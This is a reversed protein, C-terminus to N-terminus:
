IVAAIRSSTRALTYTLHGLGTTTNTIIVLFEEATVPTLILAGEQYELMTQRLSGKDMLGGSREFFSMLDSCLAGLADIDSKRDKQVIEIVFGDRGILAATTVGDISLFERLIKKLMLMEVFAPM